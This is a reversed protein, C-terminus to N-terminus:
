RKGLRGKRGNGGGSEIAGLILLLLTAGVAAVLVTKLSFDQLDHDLGAARALAGGVLAGVVGVAVTVLCGQGKRGTVMGGLWGALLGVVIWSLIGM